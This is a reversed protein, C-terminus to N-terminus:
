PMKGEIWETELSDRELICKEVDGQHCTFEPILSKVSFGSLVTLPAHLCVPFM